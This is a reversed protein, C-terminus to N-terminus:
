EYTKRLHVYYHPRKSIKLHYIKLQSTPHFYKALFSNQRTVYNVRIDVLLLVILNGTVLWNLGMFDNRQSSCSARVEESLLIAHMVRIGGKTIVTVFSQKKVTILKQDRSFRFVSKKM